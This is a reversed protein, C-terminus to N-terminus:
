KWRSPFKKLNKISNSFGLFKFKGDIEPDFAKVCFHGRTFQNRDCSHVRTCECTSQRPPPSVVGVSVNTSAFLSKASIAQPFKLSFKQARQIQFESDSRLTICPRKILEKFSIKRIKKAYTPNPNNSRGSIQTLTSSILM